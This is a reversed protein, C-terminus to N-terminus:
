PGSKPDAGRCDRAASRRPLDRAPRAEPVYVLTGYEPILPNEGNGDLTTQNLILTPAGIDDLYTVTSLVPFSMQWHESAMAEDKDYHFGISENDRMMQVWWEGGVVKHASDPAGDVPLGFAAVDALSRLSAVAAEIFCRPPRGRADSESLWVTSKKSHTHTAARHSRWFAAAEPHLQALLPEPLAGDLTQVLPHDTSPPRNLYPQSWSTAPGKPPGHTPAGLEPHQPADTGAAARRSRPSLAARRSSKAAKMKQKKASSRGTAPQQLLVALLTLLLLHLRPRM